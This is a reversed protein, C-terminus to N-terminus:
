LEKFFKQLHLKEIRVWVSLDDDIYSYIFHQYKVPVLPRYWLCIVLTFPVELTMLVRIMLSAV